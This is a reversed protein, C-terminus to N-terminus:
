LVRTPTFEIGDEDWFGYRTWKPAVLPRYAWDARGGLTLRVDRRSAAVPQLAVSQATNAPALPAAAPFSARARLNLTAASITRHHGM